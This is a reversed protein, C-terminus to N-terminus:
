LQLRFLLFRTSRLQSPSTPPLCETNDNDGLVFLTRSGDELRPGFTLGEFNELLIPLEAFDLVERKDLVPLARAAPSLRSRDVQSRTESLRIEFLRVTLGVDRAFTRELALLRGSDDLAQLETLGHVVVDGEPMTLPYLYQGALAWEPEGGPRARDEFHLLRAFHRVGAAIGEADQALASESATYLHRRDPSLSLSELGLNNRVGTTQTGDDHRPRFAMPLPLTALWAGTGVHVVDIFPPVGDRAVGESSLYASTADRLVFGEPDVRDDPYPLGERTELRVVGEFTVGAIRPRDEGDPDLGPVIEIRLTYFRAGRRGDSVAFYRDGAPDYHLASLGGVCTGEFWTGGPINVESLLQLSISDPDDARLGSAASLLALGLLSNRLSGRLRRGFARVCSRTRSARESRCLFPHALSTSGCARTEQPALLVGYLGKVNM